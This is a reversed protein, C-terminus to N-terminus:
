GASKFDVYHSVAFLSIFFSGTYKSVLALQILMCDTTALTTSQRLTICIISYFSLTLLEKSHALFECMQYHFEFKVVCNGKDM